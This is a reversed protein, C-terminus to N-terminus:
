VWASAISGSAGPQNVIVVTQGLAGEIEKALLRVVQDTSGGAGWPVVVTVPKTPKWPYTQADAVGTVALIAAAAALLMLVQQPLM